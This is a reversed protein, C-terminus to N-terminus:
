SQEVYLFADLRSISFAVQCVDMTFFIIVLLVVTETVSPVLVVFVMVSYSLIVIVM